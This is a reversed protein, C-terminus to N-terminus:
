SRYDANIDIYGHTLDCTWVTAAGHGLGIEVEILIDRGQMHAAVPAEDYDAVREGDRAITVGGIAIALRDRDAAEGSKGVAMVIRGWNADEGAVATKVLPSNAIALGIRRAAADDEAGRVAVTIFKQAGEGDRVVLQALEIMLSDLAAAFEALRPDDAGEAAVQGAAGTAFLLATDSTSTDGDVTICNFSRRNARALLAQLVEAPLGADTVVFALMTAMDPAIMGSGKAIGVLEVPKGDLQCRRAAAKPFTDTTMIAGAARAWDVGQAKSEGLRTAAAGIAATMREDPLPEGIVGTSALFVQEPPVGLAEAAAAAAREVSIRGRTGTFANANGANVLLAAARGAPLHARCWDVPASATKSRTLVGAVAAGQPFHLLLLDDRGQYRLGGAHAVGRVGAVQSLEPLREPALPSRALAM